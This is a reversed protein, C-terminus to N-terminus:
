VRHDLIWAQPNGKGYVLKMILPFMADRLAAGLPGATKGSGNRRGQAVVKEVRARRRREYRGLATALDPEEALCRGLTAADEMAMSAGQGSSPSMAHAADGLLVTRATRWTPVRPLDDTNWPGLVAPTARIIDAAPLADAAFLELLHARWSEPTFEGPVVPRRRPPNAFWWVTGDPATSWGFFARRGFAMYVMGPTAGAAAAVPGTTFGGANLLGLYTPAPGGPNLVHRTRSHLGDAGVLLDGGATSGDAFTVTVGDPREDLDHLARGYEIPIGRSAAEGRLAQYLDARRITTTTTGDATPGGLPLVALTRGAGNSMTLTPTPYGAALLRAPDLDIARLAALGNVAVTLFAGRLDASAPRAEFIRPQWGARHLALAAVTGAIGGGAILVIKTGAITM